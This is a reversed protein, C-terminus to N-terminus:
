LPLPPSPSAEAEEISEWTSVLACLLDHLCIFPSNLVRLLFLSSLSCKIPQIKRKRKSLGLDKPLHTQSRCLIGNPFGSVYRSRIFSGAPPMPYSPFSSFFQRTINICVCHVSPKPVVVVVHEPYSQYRPTMFSSALPPNMGRCKSRPLDRKPRPDRSSDRCM